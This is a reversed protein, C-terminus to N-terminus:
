KSLFTTIGLHCILLYVDENDFAETKGHGPHDFVILHFKKALIKALEEFSYMANGALGHFCVITPNEKNGYEYYSVKKNEISLIINQM